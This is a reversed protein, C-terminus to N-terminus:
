LVLIQGEISEENTTVYLILSTPSITIANRNTVSPRPLTSSGSGIGDVNWSISMSMLMVMVMVPFILM